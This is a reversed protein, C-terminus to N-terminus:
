EQRVSYLTRVLGPSRGASAPDENAVQLWTLLEREGPGFVSREVSARITLLALRRAGTEATIAAEIRQLREEASDGRVQAIVDALALLEPETPGFEQAEVIRAAAQDFRQVEM